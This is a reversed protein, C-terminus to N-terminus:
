KIEISYPQLTFIGGNKHRAKICSCVMFSGPRLKMIIRLVPPNNFGPGTNLAEEINDEFGEGGASLMFSIVSYSSDSAVLRTKCDNCAPCISDKLYKNGCFHVTIDLDPKCSQGFAHATLFFIMFSFLLRMGFSRINSIDITM